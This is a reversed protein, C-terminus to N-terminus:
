GPACFLQARSVFGLIALNIIKQFLVSRQARFDFRGSRSVANIRDMNDACDNAFVGVIDIDIVPELGIVDLGHGIHVM